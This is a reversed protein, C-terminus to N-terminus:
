EMGITSSTPHRPSGPTFSSGWCTLCPLTVIGRKSVSPMGVSIRGSSSSDAASATRLIAPRALASDRGTASTTRLPSKASYLSRSLLGSMAASGRSCAISSMNFDSGSPATTTEVVPMIERSTYSVRSRSPCSWERSKRVTPEIPCATM